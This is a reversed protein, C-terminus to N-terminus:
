SSVCVLVLVPRSIYFVSSAWTYRNGYLNKDAKMGYYLAATGTSVKDPHRPAM